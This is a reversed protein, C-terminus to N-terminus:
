LTPGRRIRVPGRADAIQVPEDGGRAALYLLARLAYRAKQSIM